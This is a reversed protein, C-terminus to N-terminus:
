SSKQESKDATPVAETEVIELLQIDFVLVSYPPISGTGGAGYGLEPPIFFRAKSGPKMLQLGETWGEIVGDLKFRAPEGRQYSSDFTQNNLLRGEYHVVVESETSPATGEGPEVIVYQLGTSTELVGEQQRNATMFAKATDAMQGLQRTQIEQIVLAQTEQSMTPEERAISDELGKMVVKLDVSANGGELLANGFRYGFFYAIDEETISAPPVHATEAAVCFSSTVSFLLALASNKIIKYMLSSYGMAAFFLM